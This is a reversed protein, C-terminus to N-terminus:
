SPTVVPEGCVPCARGSAGRAGCAACVVVLSDRDGEVANLVRTRARGCHDCVRGTAQPYGCWECRTAAQPDVPLREFTDSTPELGPVTEVQPTLLDLELSTESAREIEPVDDSAVAAVDDYRTVELGPIPEVAVSPDDVHTREFGDPPPDVWEPSPITHLALGCTACYWANPQVTECVRCTIQHEM